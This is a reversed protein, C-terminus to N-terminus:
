AGNTRRRRLEAFAEDVSEAAVTSRARPEPRHTSLVPRLDPKRTLVEAMVSPLLKAHLGKHLLAVVATVLQEDTYGASRNAAMLHEVETCLARFVENPLLDGVGHRTCAATVVRYTDAQVGPGYRAAVGAAGGQRRPGRVPRNVPRPRDDRRAVQGAERTRADCAVVQDVQTEPTPVYDGGGGRGRGGGGPTEPHTGSGMATGNASGDDYGDDYGVSPTPIRGNPPPSDPPTPSEGGLAEITALYITWVPEHGSPVRMRWVADRVRMLEALIAARIKDSQVTRATRLAAKMINPTELVGDRRILARVLVEETDEDVVVFRASELGALFTRIDRATTDRALQAWRGATLDILGCQELNRQSLLLEYMWQEDRSLSKWDGDRWISTLVRAHERPM